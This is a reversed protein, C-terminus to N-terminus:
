KVADAGGNDVPDASSAGRAGFVGARRADNLLIIALPFVFMGLVGMVRLGLYMFVLTVIPSLGIHKGVVKPEIFNRVATIILYLALIKVGMWTDGMLLLIVGWPILVTGVGLVPLIDVVAIIAALLVAYNIRYILFGISLECFTVSMILAYSVAMRGVTHGFTHWSGSVADRYKAPLSKKAFAKVSDYGSTLYFCAVICTIVAVLVGPVHTAGSAIVGLAKSAFDGLWAEISATADELMSRLTQELDGSVNAFIRDTWADLSDVVAPATTRFLEPVRSILSAIEGIGNHILAAVGVGIVGVLLFTLIPSIVRRSIRTRKALLNIPKQLLAAVLFGIVFPMLWVLLYKFFLYLLGFVCVYFLVDVIFRKKKETDM